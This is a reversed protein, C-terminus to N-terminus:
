RKKQKGNKPVEKKRIKRRKRSDMEAKATKVWDKWGEGGKKQEMAEVWRKEAYYESHECIPCSNSFLGSLYLHSQLEELQENPCKMMFQFQQALLKMRRAEYLYHFYLEKEAKKVPDEEKKYAKELRNILKDDYEREKKTYFRIM